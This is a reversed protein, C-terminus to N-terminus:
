YYEAPKRKGEGTCVDPPRQLYLGLGVLNALESRGLSVCDQGFSFGFCLYATTKDDLDLWCRRWTHRLDGDRRVNEGEGDSLPSLMELVVNRSSVIM